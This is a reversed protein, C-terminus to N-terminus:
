QTDSKHALLKDVALKLRELHLNQAVVYALFEHQFQRVITYDISKQPEKRLVLLKSHIIIPTCEVAIFTSSLVGQTVEPWDPDLFNDVLIYGGPQVLGGYNRIDREVGELSHDGDIFLLSVPMKSAFEVCQPDQSYAKHLVIDKESVGFLSLNERFTEESIDLDLVLDKNTSSEGGVQKYYGNLPDITLIPVRSGTQKQASWMLIASGGFLTGIEVIHSNRAQSSRTVYRVLLYVILYESIPGAIRGSLRSEIELFQEEADRVDDLQFEDIGASQLCLLIRGREEEELIRDHVPSLM